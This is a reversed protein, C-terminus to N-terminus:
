NLAVYPVAPGTTPSSVGGIRVTVPLADGKMHNGPVRLNIQYLGVFGPALGSWEVIIAAQTYGPNGFFVQVADTVALPSTPSPMGATVKGGKTAGLGTAYLVLEEDRTAPHDKTVPTGDQHLIAPAGSDLVFVAPAYKAVPVTASLSPVQKDISRVVLPYQGAGLTPPVQANIQSASTMILPLAQNNLTVCTGGLVTPLPPSGASGGSALNRGFISILGGPATSPLYSATSVVGSQNVAPRNQFAQVPNSVPLISLGSATLAYVTSGSPDVVMTRGNINVRQTGTVTALPTELASVTNTTRGSAADVLEVMGADSPAANASSRVPTSFRAFTTNSVAAVAAVPRSAATTTTGRGPFGGIAGGIPGPVIGGLSPEAGTLTLSENLIQGNVLYYRGRPGAAVPGFYGQIPTSVVQKALIFDDLTADYLYAMGNGALFLVYEGGPTAVMTRVPGALTKTTGLIATNLTRPVLNNGVLKWISGDSMIVQPGRLSPAIAAPYILSVSANLPLPPMNVRGVVQGKDLDVVSISEGGTNAVYLTSGDTSLAMSHPLQGVKIPSMLRKSQMDFVEIRNMGSNAIYIRQRVSDLALDMLGESNSIGSSIPILTGNAEANRNNQFVRVDPILNIAEPAHLLYDHPAVTGLSVAALPNFSYQLTAGNAAPQISLRPATQASATQNGVVTGAGGGFNAFGGGGGGAGGGGFGGGGGGGGGGGFGGGGGGSGGGGGFGGGGGGAGGGGGIFVPPLVIVVGGAPGGGGAGGVGGLGAPGTSPLNYQQATLVRLQGGGVNTVSIKASQQAATVGCQDNALLVSPSSPMAIPSQYMSGVPLVTFGSDSLAYITSGDSTIMMKGTLNEQLQVGLKILLNDPDSVLFQTVNAAAPPNQVPAINFASYLTKGDPSFISGGQNQQLNFNNANGSPFAFPANAANQQALIALTQTDFLSIGAMFKSGDPYVSLVPSLNPVVRSRLVTASATDYVFVVRSTTSIGNAGMIYRGDPTAALKAPAAQTARGTTPPAPTTAAPPPVAVAQLTPGGAANPDYVLLTNTGPNTNAGTTATTGVTSILVREDGGVAVGEPGAPLAVKNVIRNQSLDIVDLSASEYSAVYLYKSSRALAIAYPTGSTSISRVLRPPNTALGYVDIRKAGTNALYLQRHSEDLVIDSYSGPQAVVTGFTASWGPLALLFVLLSYRAERM